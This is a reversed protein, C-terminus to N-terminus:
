RVDLLMERRDGLIGQPRFVMLAILALGVLGIAVAGVEDSSFVSAPISGNTTLTTLLSTIFNFVFWFLLSGLIPGFIRAAGGLILLTYLDFTVEPQFATPTVAQQSIALMVGALAGIVGGLVLSQLKYSFVNKGLSRVADEDERIARLVRGWPSHVLLYLLFAAVGVLPWTVIMVWLDGSLFTVNGFGYSGAAIPSVSFFGNAFQQLGYVGGTLPQLYSSNYLLRLIEAAAITTIALYDARLRLTPLGLLLAFVIAGAIAVLVGVWLSLGWTAGAVAVGYAGVLMFGVQGFNLLGTYGFHLNLGIAALAYIAGTPGLAAQLGAQISDWIIM